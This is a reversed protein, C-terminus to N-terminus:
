KKRRLVRRTGPKRKAAPKPKTKPKQKPKQKPKRAPKREEEAGEAELETQKELCEDWNECEECYELENTDVGMEGGGPCVGDDAITGKGVSESDDDEIEEVDEDDEIEEVDEDYVEEVDEDEDYVEEDVAEDEDYYEDGDGDEYEETEQEAEEGGEEFPEGWYEEYVEEFTPIIILEDLVQASDLMEDSIVYDRDDFRHGIYEAYAEKSRPPKITFAISKGEDPDIFDIRKEYEGRGPRRPGKALQDLHKQFYWDSVEWVQVGKDEESSSDWCYVNYVTRKKPFLSKWVEDEAGENKLQTRHMCIPCPKDYTEKLCIFSKDESIGIGYHVALKLVYAPEGEPITPHNAGAIYPILDILHDGGEPNWYTAGTGSKFIGRGGTERQEQDEKLREKLKAKM